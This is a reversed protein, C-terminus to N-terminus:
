PKALRVAAAKGGATIQAVFLGSPLEGIGVQNNAALAAAFVKKGQMDFIELRGEHAQLLNINLLNLTTNAQFDLWTKAAEPAEEAPSVAKLVLAKTAALVNDNTRQGNGDACLSVFYFQCLNGSATAPAKWTFSWSTSGAALTKPASQRVYQRGNGSNSAVNNGSGATLTGCKANAGDLCTLQFGARTANGANTLTVTYTQNATVTDPIGAISVTGTFNGGSHCGSAACTTESPAGTRGIPPNTPNRFDTLLFWTAAIALSVHLPKLQM